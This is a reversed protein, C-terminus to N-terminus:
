KGGLVGVWWELSLCLGVITLQLQFLVRVGFWDADFLCDWIFLDVGCLVVFCIYIYIGVLACLSM